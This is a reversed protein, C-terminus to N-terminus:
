LSTPQPLIVTFTTGVGVTSHLEIRGGHAKVVKRAIPLGLGTGSARTTFFLDFIQGRVSAGIGQGTDRVEIRTENDRNKISVDVRRTTRGTLSDIANSLLTILVLAIEDRDCYVKPAGEHTVTFEIDLMAMASGHSRHLSSLLLKADTWSLDLAVPKSFDIIESTLSGIKRLESRVSEIVHTIHRDQIDAGKLRRELLTVHLGVANLPNRIEHALGAALTAPVHLRNGITEAWCVEMMVTLEVDIAKHLSAVLVTADPAGSLAREVGQKLVNVAGPLYQPLIGVELQKRGIQLRDTLSRSRSPQGFLCTIWRRSFRRLDAIREKSRFSSGAFTSGVLHASVAGALADLEPSLLPQARQLNAEDEEGFDFYAEIDEFRQM